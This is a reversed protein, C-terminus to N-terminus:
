LITMDVRKRAKDYLNEIASRSKGKYVQGFQGSALKSIVNIQDIDITSDKLITYEDHEYYLNDVTEM